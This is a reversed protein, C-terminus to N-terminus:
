VPKNLTERADLEIASSFSHIAQDFDGIHSYAVGLLHHAEPIYPDLALAQTFEEAAQDFRSRELHSVGRSLYRQVRPDERDVRLDSTQSALAGSFLQRILRFVM